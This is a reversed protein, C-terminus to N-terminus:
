DTIMSDDNCSNIGGVNKKPRYHKDPCHYLPSWYVELKYPLVDGVQIATCAKAELGQLLPFAVGRTEVATRRRNTRCYAEWKYPLAGMQSSPDYYSDYPM